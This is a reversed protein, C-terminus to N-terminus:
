AEYRGICNLQSFAETLRMAMSQEASRLWMRSDYFKKNPADPGKSNGLQSHLYDSNEEYFNLVGQWFAWQTDTDINMKVVGYQIAESIDSPASGSGGHFVFDLTNPKIDFIKSVYAQSDRLIRPKLQVNGPNYVGHVNGFSAAITFKESIESLQQYAYAVDAPQTYLASKDINTNDVGDEEGGTCGLEIELGMDLKQMKKLYRASIAINEKLSEESLDIMHSSFLPKGTKERHINGEELLSDIWPLLNKSAHDTHLIVPLEYYSAVQHVYKAAAVAGLVTTQLGSLKLGKGVFFAAGGNSIQIIIPSSVNRAAELAANISNIGTVNVAPIAYNNAKADAYITQLDSGSVVGPEVIKRLNM